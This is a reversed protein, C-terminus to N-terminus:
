ERVLQKRREARAVTRIEGTANERQQLQQQAIQDMWELLSDPAAQQASLSQVPLLTTALLAVTKLGKAWRHPLESHGGHRDETRSAAIIRRPRERKNDGGTVIRM